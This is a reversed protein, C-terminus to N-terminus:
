SRWWGRRTIRRPSHPAQTSDPQLVVAPQTAIVSAPPRTELTRMARHQLVTAREPAWAHHHIAAARVDDIVSSWRLGSVESRLEDAVETARDFGDVIERAIQHPARTGFPRGSFNRQRLLDVSAPSIWGPGGQWDYCYVPRLMALACPVTKGITLVADAASLVEPTVRVVEDFAGIVRVEVGSTRLSEIAARVEPPVHSSVVVLSRLAEPVRAPYEWFATPVPNGISVVRSEDVGLAARVATATEPSNATISSALALELESSTPMELDLWASMHHFVTAPSRERDLSPSLLSEPIIRHQVWVLEWGEQWLVTSDDTIRLDLSAGIAAMPDAVTPSYITPEVGDATLAEALELAILESGGIHSMQRTTILARRRVESTDFAVVRPPMDAPLAQIPGAPLTSPLFERGATIPELRMGHEDDLYDYGISQIRHDPDLNTYLESRLRRDAARLSKLHYVNLSTILRREIPVAPVPSAHVARHTDFMAEDLLRVLAWKVKEGWVGDIRYADARYLERLRLGIADVAVDSRVLERLTEPASLELREDPDLILLWDAGLNRAYDRIASFAAAEHHWGGSRRTDDYVLWGDVADAVNLRLDAALASEFPYRLRYAGLM